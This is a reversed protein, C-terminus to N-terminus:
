EIRERQDSGDVTTRGTLRHLENTLDNQVLTGADFHTIRLPARSKADPQRASIEYEESLVELRRRGPNDKDGTARGAAVDQFRGIRCGSPLWLGPRYEVFDIWRIEHGMTISGVEIGAAAKAGLECLCHVPACGRAVAFHITLRDVIRDPLGQQNPQFLTVRICREREFDATADFELLRNEAVAQALWAPLTLFQRLRTDPAAAGVALAPVSSLTSAQQRYVRPEDGRIFSQWEEGVKWESSTWEDTQGFDNVSVDVRFEDPLQRRLRYFEKREPIGSAVAPGPPSPAASVGPLAFSKRIASFASGPVSQANRYTALDRGGGQTRAISVDIPSLDRERDRLREVLENVSAPPQARAPCHLVITVIILWKAM